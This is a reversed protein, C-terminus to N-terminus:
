AAKQHETKLVELGKKLIPDETTEEDRDRVAVPVSPEVGHDHIPNGKPSMYKAVTLLLGGEPLTVIKQHPARGFTREGVVPSRGADLLAAAVVEAPGATGGDVLLAMPLDWANRAPDANWVKETVTRGALRTV